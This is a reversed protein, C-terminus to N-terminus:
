VVSKRDQHHHHGEHHLDKDSEHNNHHNTSGSESSKKLNSNSSEHSTESSDSSKPLVPLAVDLLPLHSELDFFVTGTPFDEDFDGSVRTGLSNIIHDLCRSLQERIATVDPQFTSLNWMSSTPMPSHLLRRVLELTFACVHAGCDYGNRQQQVPMCEITFKKKFLDSVRALASRCDKTKGNSLSDYYYCQGDPISAVMLSWHSGGSGAAHKDLDNIPMFLYKCNMLKKPLAVKLEEPSIAAEALLFVLSPRLLLIENAQNPYSPFWLHEILEDVYDISM